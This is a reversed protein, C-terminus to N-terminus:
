HPINYFTKFSIIFHSQQVSRSDICQWTPLPHCLIISYIFSRINIGSLPLGLSLHGDSMSQQHKMANKSRGIRRCLSASGGPYGLLAFM